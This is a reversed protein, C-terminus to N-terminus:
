YSQIKVFYEHSGREAANKQAGCNKAKGERSVASSTLPSLKRTIIVHHVYGVHRQRSVVYCHCTCRFEVGGHTDHPSLARLPNYPFEVATMLGHGDSVCVCRWRRELYTRSRGGRYLIIAVNTEDNHRRPSPITTCWGRGYCADAVVCARGRRTEGLRLRTYACLRLRFTRATAGVRADAACVAACQTRVCM